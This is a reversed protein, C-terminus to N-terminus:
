PFFIDILYNFAIGIILKAIMKLLPFLYMVLPLDNGNVQCVEFSTVASFSLWRYSLLEDAQIDDAVFLVLENQVFLCCIFSVNSSLHFAPKSDAPLFFFLSLEKKTKDSRIDERVGKFYFYIRSYFLNLYFLFYVIKSVM